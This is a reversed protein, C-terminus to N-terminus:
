HLLSIDMSIGTIDDLGEESLIPHVWSDVVHLEPQQKGQSEQLLKSFTM